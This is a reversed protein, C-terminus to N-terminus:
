YSLQVLGTATKSPTRTGTEPHTGTPEKQGKRHTYLRLYTNDQEDCQRGLISYENHLKGAIVPRLALRYLLRGEFGSPHAQPRYEHGRHGEHQSHHGENESGAGTGLAADCQPRGDDETHRYVHYQTCQKYGIKITQHLAEFLEQERLFCLKPGFPINM